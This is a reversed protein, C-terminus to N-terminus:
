LLSPSEGIDVITCAVIPDLGLERARALLAPSDAGPSIWLEGHALTTLPQLADVGLEPPLYTVIRDVPGEILTVDAVVTLGEITGGRPNVPIVDWGANQHARVAKNGFKARDASAGVIVVTPV